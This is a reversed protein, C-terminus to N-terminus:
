VGVTFPTAEAGSAQSRVQVSFVASAVDEIEILDGITGIGTTTRNLTIIDSETAVTGTNATEFNSASRDASYQLCLLFYLFM